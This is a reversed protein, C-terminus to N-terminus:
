EPPIRRRNHFPAASRRIHARQRRGSPDARRGGKGRVCRRGDTGLSGKAGTWVVLGGLIPTTTYPLARLPLSTAAHQPPHTPHSYPSSALTLSLASRAGPDTLIRVPPSLGRGRGPSPSIRHFEPVSPSAPRSALGSSLCCPPCAHGNRSGRAGSGSLIRIALSTSIAA